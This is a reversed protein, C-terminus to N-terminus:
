KNKITSLFFSFVVGENNDVLRGKKRLRKVM